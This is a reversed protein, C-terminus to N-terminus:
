LDFLKQLLNFGITSTSTANKFPGQLWWGTKESPFRNTKIKGGENEVFEFETAILKLQSESVGSVAKLQRENKIEILTEEPQFM